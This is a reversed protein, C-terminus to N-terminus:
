YSRSRVGHLINELKRGVERNSFYTLIAEQANKGMETCLSRNGFLNLVTVALAKGHGMGVAIGAGCKQILDALEGRAGCIVPKGCALFEYVKSPIATESVRVNRMPLVFVDALNLCEIVKDTGEVKGLMVVNELGQNKVRSIIEERLEGDGRIVFVIDKYSELIKAAELIVNFDYAPGLIGSYMVVFKGQLGEKELLNVNKPLPRFVEPDVGLEVVHVKSKHVKYESLIGSKISDNIPAIGDALRYSVYSTFKAVKVLWGSRLFGLDVASNPWLDGCDLILRAWKVVRYFLGPVIFTSSFPSVYFIGDVKGVWFVAFLSSWMFSFYILFRKVIGETPLPPVWVRFVDLGNLYEKVVAKGQHRRPINGDPYHPFGAVVKVRHGRGKLGLAANWARNSAGGMDPPFYLSIVLINM